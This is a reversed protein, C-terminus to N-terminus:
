EEGDGEDGEPVLLAELPGPVRYRPVEAFEPRRGRSRLERSQKLQTLNLPPPKAHWLVGEVSSEM